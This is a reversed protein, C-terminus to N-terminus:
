NKGAMSLAQVDARRRVKDWEVVQRARRNETAEALFNILDDEFIEPSNQQRRMSEMISIYELVEAVEKESLTEIKFALRERNTLRKAM